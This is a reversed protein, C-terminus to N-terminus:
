HPTPARERSVAVPITQRASGYRLRIRTRGSKEGQIWGPKAKAVRPDASTVELHRSKTVDLQSGDAFTGIVAWAVARGGAPTSVSPPYVMLRRPAASPEVEVWLERSEFPVGAADATVAWLRYPGPAADRPIVLSFTLKKPAVPQRRSAPKASSVSQINTTGLPDDGVVAVGFAATPRRDEVIIKVVTGAIAVTGDAPAVIRLPPAAGAVGACLAALIWPLACQARSM